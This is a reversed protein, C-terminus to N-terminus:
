HGNQKETQANKIEDAVRMIEEETIDVSCPISLSSCHINGVNQLNYSFSDKFPPLDNLPHWLPRTQIGKGHLYKMLEGSTMGFSERDIRITYLWFTSKAYEAEGPCSIGSVGALADSYLDANLRKKEVFSDLQEMQACGMAAQINTLRYNYGIENHYYEVPDDKAQQSLYRAKDAYEKNDTVLMGGGGTTIIKNGNFSFCSIDSFTGLKRGKYEAGLSETADEIVKLNYMGALQNIKEVDAPHGLLDVPLIASIRRGTIKNYLCGTSIECDHKLFNELKVTDIQLYEPEVDMFLPFAGIYRVCNAPSVFTLAPMIVEDNRKVGAILLAIHIAATGNVMAVAYEAGTYEAVVREFENVYSGASSVWGTDLCEKIYKWENGKVSPVSLPIIENSDSKKGSM